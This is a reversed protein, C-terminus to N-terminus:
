IFHLWELKFTCFCRFQIKTMKVGSWGGPKTSIALKLKKKGERRKRRTSFFVLPGNKKYGKDCKGNNQQYLNNTRSFTAAMGDRVSLKSYKNQLKLFRKLGYSRIKLFENNICVTVAGNVAARSLYGGEQSKLSFHM